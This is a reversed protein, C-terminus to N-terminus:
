IDFHVLLWIDSFWYRKPPVQLAGLCFRIRFDFERWRKGLCRFWFCLFGGFFWWFWYVVDKFFFFVGNECKRVSSSFGGCGLRRRAVGLMTRGILFWYKEFRWDKKWGINSKFWFFVLIYILFLPLIPRVGVVLLDIM